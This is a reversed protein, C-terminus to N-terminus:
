EGDAAHERELVKQALEVGRLAEELPEEHGGAVRPRDADPEEDAAGDDARDPGSDAQAAEQVDSRGGRAGRSRGPPSHAERRTARRYTAGTAPPPLACKLPCENSTHSMNRVSLVRFDWRKRRQRTAAANRSPRTAGPM